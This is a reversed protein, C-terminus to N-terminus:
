ENEDVKFIRFELQDIVVHFPAFCMALSGHSWWRCRGHSWWRLYFCLTFVYLVYM